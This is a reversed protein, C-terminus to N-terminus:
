IPITALPRCATTWSSSRRRGAEANSLGELPRSRRSRRMLRASLAYFHARNNWQVHRVDVLRLYLENVLATPQLTHGSRERRLQVEALARLEEYVIPLLKETAERSGREAAEFLEATTLEAM